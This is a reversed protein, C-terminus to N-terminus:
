RGPKCDVITVKETQEDYRGVLVDAMTDCSISKLDSHKGPITPLTYDRSGDAVLDKDTTLRDVADIITSSTLAEQFSLSVYM